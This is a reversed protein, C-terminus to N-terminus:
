IIMTISYPFVTFYAYSMGFIFQFQQQKLRQQRLVCAEEEDWEDTSEGAVLGGLTASEGSEGDLTKQSLYTAGTTSM